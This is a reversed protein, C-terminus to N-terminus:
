RSCSWATRHYQLIPVLGTPPSVMKLLTQPWTFVWNPTVFWKDQQVNPAWHFYLKHEENWQSILSWPNPQMHHYQTHETHPKRAARLCLTEDNILWICQLDTPFLRRILKACYNCTTDTKWNVLLKPLPIIGETDPQLLPGSTWAISYIEYKVYWVVTWAKYVDHLVNPWGRNATTSSGMNLSLLHWATAHQLKIVDPMHLEATGINYNHSQSCRAIHSWSYTTITVSSYLRTTVGPWLLGNANFNCTCAIRISTWSNAWCQGCSYFCTRNRAALRLRSRHSRAVKVSQDCRDCRLDLSWNHVLRFLLLTSVM